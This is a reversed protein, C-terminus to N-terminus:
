ALLSYLIALMEKIGNLAMITHHDGEIEFCKINLSTYKKWGNYPDDIDQFGQILKKSKFLVIEQKICSPSHALLLKEREWALALMSESLADSLLGLQRRFTQKNHNNKETIAWCDILVLLNFAFKKM